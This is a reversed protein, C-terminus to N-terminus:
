KKSLIRLNLDLIEELEFYKMLPGQTKGTGTIWRNFAPMVVVKKVNNTEYKEIENLKGILWVPIKRGSPLRYAPHIHGMVIVKSNLDKPWMNGHIFKIEGINYEDVKPYNIGGDHNGRVLIIEDFIGEMTKLFKMTQPVDEYGISNKIDGLIVLKNAKGKIKEIRNIFDTVEDPVLYGRRYLVNRWGIHLDAIILHNRYKMATEGNIFEM